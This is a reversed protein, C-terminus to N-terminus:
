CKTAPEWRGAARPLRKAASLRPARNDPLFQAHAAPYGACFQAGLESRESDTM